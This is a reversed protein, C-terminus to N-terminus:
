PEMVNIADGPLLGSRPRRSGSEMGVSTHAAM